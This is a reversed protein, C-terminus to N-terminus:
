RSAEDRTPVPEPPPGFSEPNVAALLRAPVAGPPRRGPDRRGDFRDTLANVAQVLERLEDATAYFSSTTVTVTDRWEEPQVTQRALFDRVREAERLLTLGILEKIAPMSGPDAPDADFRRGRTTPRWPKERGRRPAPEIFEARALSRLHFSCNAVTEGTHQACQTATAEGVNDLYDLLELRLPHALARIRKPETIRVAQEAGQDTEM